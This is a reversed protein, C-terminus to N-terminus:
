NGAETENNAPAQGLRDSLLGAAVIMIAGCWERLTLVEDALLGNKKDLFIVRFEETEHFAMAGRCYDLVQAFTGLALKKRMSEKSLALAAAQVIKLETVAADGIEGMKAALAAGTLNTIAPNTM